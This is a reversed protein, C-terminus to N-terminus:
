ETENLENMLINVDVHHEILYNVIHENSAIRTDAQSDVADEESLAEELTSEDFNEIRVAPAKEQLKPAEAVQDGNTPNTTSKDWYYIGLLCVIIVSAAVAILQSKQTFWDLRLIKVQRNKGALKNQIALPLSEFYDAPVTFPNGKPFASAIIENTIEQPLEEFYNNPINFTDEKILQAASIAAEIENPLETFYDSPVEFPNETNFDSTITDIRVDNSLESFYNPPVCFCNEKKIKSLLPAYKELDEFDDPINNLENM